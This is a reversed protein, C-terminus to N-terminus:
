KMLMMKKNLVKGETKMSYFYIGSAQTKGSDDIGSWTAKHYGASKAENVLTTVIQGKVNYITIQVNSDEPLAYSITTIPNFPNPYNSVSLAKPLVVIDDVEGFSVQYYKAEPDVKIKRSVFAGDLDRLKYESKTVNDAREGFYLEFEVEEDECELIYALITVEGDKVVGAGKCEGNVMVAVELPASQMEEIHIFMPIYDMEEEWTFAKSKKPDDPITGGDNNWSFSCDNECEVIVMDGYKLPLMKDGIWNGNLDKYVSWTQTKIGTLNDYVDGFAEIITHKEELFYGIWNENGNGKLPISTNPLEVFGSVNLEVSQLLGSKVEFKYGQSSTFVHDENYWNDLNLWYISNIYSNGYPSWEVQELITNDLVDSLVYEAMDGDYILQNNDEIYTLTDLAPISLWKFVSSKEISHNYLFWKDNRHPIAPKAGIDSRTGDVDVYMSCGTDICVSKVDSVWIPIYNVDLQPDIFPTAESGTISGVGPTLNASYDYDIGNVLNYTLIPSSGDYKQIGRYVNSIINNRVLTNESEDILIGVQIPSDIITNDEIEVDCCDDICIVSNNQEYNNNAIVNGNLKINNSETFFCTVGNVDPSECNVLTNSHIYNNLLSVGGLGTAYIAGGKSATCNKIESNMIIAPLPSDNHIYIGGGLGYGSANANYGNEINCHDLTPSSDWIEVSAAGHYFNDDIININKILPSGSAIHLASGGGGTITVNELTDSSDYDILESYFILCGNIICANKDTGMIKIHRNDSTNSTPTFSLSEEYTGPFVRITNFENGYISVFNIAAQITHFTYNLEDNASVFIIESSMIPSLTISPLTIISEAGTIHINEKKVPYYSGDSHYLKYTIDYTGFQEDEFFHNYYGLENPYLIIPDDYGSRFTIEANTIDGLDDSLSLNGEVLRTQFTPVFNNESAYWELFTAVGRIAMPICISEIQECESMTKESVNQIDPFDPLITEEILTQMLEIEDFDTYNSPHGAFDGSKDDSGFMDAVQNVIYFIDYLSNAPLDLLGGYVEFTDEADWNVNAVDNRLYGGEAGGVWIGWFYYDLDWGEYNDCGGTNVMDLDFDIDPAHNDNHVHAPVAMDELLHIVRGLYQYEWNPNQDTFIEFLGDSLHVYFPNDYPENSGDGIDHSVVYVNHNNIFDELSKISIYFKCSFSWLSILEGSVLRFDQLMSTELAKEKFHVFDNSGYITTYAKTVASPINHIVYENGSVYGTDIDHNSTQDILFNDADWFHTISHLEKEIENETYDDVGTIYVSPGDDEAYGYVWDHADESSTAERMKLYRDNQGDDRSYEDYKKFKELLNLGEDFIYKHINGMYRPESLLTSFVSLCILTILIRKM